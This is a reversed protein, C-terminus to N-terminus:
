KEGEWYALDGQIRYVGERETIPMNPGTGIIPQLMVARVVAEDFIHLVEGDRPGGVAEVIRIGEDNM